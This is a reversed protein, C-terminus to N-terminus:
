TITAGEMPWRQKFILNGKGAQIHALEIKKYMDLSHQGAKDMADELQRPSLKRVTTKLSPLGYKM